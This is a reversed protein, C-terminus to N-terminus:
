GLKVAELVLRNGEAKLHGAETHSSGYEVVGPQELELYLGPGGSLGQRIGVAEAAIGGAGCEFRCYRAWAAKM